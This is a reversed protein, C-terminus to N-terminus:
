THGRSCNRGPTFQDADVVNKDTCVLSLLGYLTFRSRSRNLIKPTSLVVTNLVTVTLQMITEVESCSSM